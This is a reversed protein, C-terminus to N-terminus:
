LSENELFICKDANVSSKVTIYIRFHIQVQLKCYAMKCNHISALSLTVKNQYLGEKSQYPFQEQFITTLMLIVQNVYYLLFTQILVLDGEAESGDVVTFHDIAERSRLVASRTAIEVFISNKQRRRINDLM